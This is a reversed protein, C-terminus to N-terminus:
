ATTNETGKRIEAGLEQELTRMIKMMMGEIEKDTLTKEEDLFTVSIAFSKKGPGLKESEFVDFLEVSRLKALRIQALAKEVEQYKVTASVVM